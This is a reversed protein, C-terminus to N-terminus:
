HLLHVAIHFFSFISFMQNVFDGAKHSVLLKVEDIGNNKGGFHKKKWLPAKHNPHHHGRSSVFKICYVYM